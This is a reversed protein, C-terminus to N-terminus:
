APRRSGGVHDGGVANRADVDEAGLGNAINHFAVQNAVGRVSPGAGAISLVAHKKVVGGGVGHDPRFRVGVPDSSASDGVETLEYSAFYGGVGGAALRGLLRCRASAGLSRRAGLAQED